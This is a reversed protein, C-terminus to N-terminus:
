IRLLKPELNEACLVKIEADATGWQAIFIHAYM